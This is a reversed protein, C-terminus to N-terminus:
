HDPSWRSRCTSVCEKGVRREESRLDEGALVNPNTTYTINIGAKFYERSLIGALQESNHHDSEHGLFLLELRRPSDDNKTVCGAFAVLPLILLLFLKRM